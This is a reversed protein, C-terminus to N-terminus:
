RRGGEVVVLGDNKPGFHIQGNFALHAALLSASCRQKLDGEPLQDRAQALSSVLNFVADERKLQRQHEDKIFQNIRSQHATM